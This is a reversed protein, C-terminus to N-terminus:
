IACQVMVYRGQMPCRGGEWYLTMYAICTGQSLGLMLLLVRPAVVFPCVIGRDFFSFGRPLEFMQSHIGVSPDIHSGLSGSCVAFLKRQLRWVFFVPNTRTWAVPTTGGSQFYESHIITSAIAPSVHQRCCCPLFAQSLSLSTVANTEVGPGLSLLFCLAWDVPADLNLLNLVLLFVSSIVSLACRKRPRLVCDAAYELPGPPHEHSIQEPYVSLFGVRLSSM